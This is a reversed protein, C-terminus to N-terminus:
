AQSGRPFDISPPALSGCVSALEAHILLAIGQKQKPPLSECTRQTAEASKSGLGDCDSTEWSAVLDLNGPMRLAREWQQGSCCAAMVVGQRSAHLFFPREGVHRCFRGRCGFGYVPPEYLAHYGGACVIINVQEHWFEEPVQVM